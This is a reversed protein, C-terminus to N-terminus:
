FELGALGPYPWNREGFESGPIPGNRKRVGFRGVWPQAQDKRRVQGVLTPGPGKESCRVRVGFWPQVRDKGRGGFRFEPYFCLGTGLQNRVAKHDGAPLPSIEQSEQTHHKRTNKDSEM